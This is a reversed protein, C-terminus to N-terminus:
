PKVHDPDQGVHFLHRIHLIQLSLVSNLFGLGLLGALLWNSRFRPHHSLYGLALTTFPILTMFFRPESTSVGSFMQWMMQFTFFITTAWIFFFWLKRVKDMQDTENSKLVFVLLSLPILWWFPTVENLRTFFILVTFPLSNKTLQVTGWGANQKLIWTTTYFFDGTQYYNFVLWMLIACTPLIIFVICKMAVQILSNEWGEKNVLMRLQSLVVILFTLGVLGSIIVWPEYRVLNNFTALLTGILGHIYSNRD